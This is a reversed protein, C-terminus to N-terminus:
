REDESAAAGDSWQSVPVLFVTLHEVADNFAIVPSGPLGAGWALPDTQPLFFM